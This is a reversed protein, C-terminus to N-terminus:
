SRQTFPFWVGRLVSSGMNNRVHDEELTSVDVDEIFSSINRPGFVPFVIEELLSKADKLDFATVGCGMNLPSADASREFTFWYRHLM